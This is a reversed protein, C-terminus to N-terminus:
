QKDIFCCVVIKHRRWALSVPSADCERTTREDTRGNTRRSGFKHVRYKSFSHVLKSAFQCLLDSPFPCLITLKATLLDFSLTVRPNLYIQLSPPLM